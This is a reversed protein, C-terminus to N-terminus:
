HRSQLLGHQLVLNYHECCLLIRINFFRPKLIQIRYTCHRLYLMQYFHWPAGYPHQHFAHIPRLNNVAIVTTFVNIYIDMLILIFGIVAKFHFGQHPNNDVFKLLPHFGATFNRSVSNYRHRNNRIGSPQGIHNGAMEIQLQLFPLLKQLTNIDLSTQLPKVAKQLPFPFNKINFFLNTASYPLLNLLYLLFIVKPFLYLGNMVFQPVLVSDLPINFFIALTHTIVFIGLINYLSNVLFYSAQLPGSIHGLLSSYYSGINFSQQIHRPISYRLILIIYLRSSFHKVMVMISQFLHLVTNQFIQRNTM